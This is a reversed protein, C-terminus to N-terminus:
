EIIEKNIAEIYLEKMLSKLKDPTVDLTLNDIYKNLITITDEAQNVIDDDIEELNDTFNEVISIDAVTAKYLSDVITDFLYPNQKNLM